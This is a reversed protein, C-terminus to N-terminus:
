ASWQRNGKIALYETAEGIIRQLRAAQCHGTIEGAKLLIKEMKRRELGFHTKITTLGKNDVFCCGLIPQFILKGGFKSVDLKQRPLKEGWIKKM